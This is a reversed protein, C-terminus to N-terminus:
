GSLLGADRVPSGTAVTGFGAPRGSFVHRNLVVYNLAPIVICTVLIATEPSAGFGHTALAPVASAAAYGVLTLATFRLAADSRPTRDGFTFRRHGRYSWFAALGYAAPSALAIPIALGTVAGWTLGAYLMTAIGGVLVM